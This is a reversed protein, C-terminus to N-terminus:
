VTELELDTKLIAILLLQHHLDHHLNLMGTRMMLIKQVGTLLYLYFTLIYLYFLDM